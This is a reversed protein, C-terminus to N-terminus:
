CPRFAFRRRRETRIARHFNALGSAQRRSWRRAGRRAFSAAIMADVEPEHKLRAAATDFRPDGILDKRGIVELLRQWHVPNTRSTYVYLYDNPGGPKCPYVGSPVAFGSIVKSGNRKAAV